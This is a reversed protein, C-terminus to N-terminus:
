YEGGDIYDCTTPHTEPVGVDDEGLFCMRSMDLGSIAQKDEKSMFGDAETTATPHVHDKYAFKNKLGAVLHQLGTADLFNMM